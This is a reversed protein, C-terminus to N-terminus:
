FISVSQLGLEDWGLGIKGLYGKSQPRTYGCSNDPRDLNNDKLM